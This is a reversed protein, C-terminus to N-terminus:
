SSTTLSGATLVVVVMAILCGLVIGPLFLTGLAAGTGYGHASKLARVMMILAMISIPISILGPLTGLIPSIVSLLRLPTFIGSLLSYPGYVLSLLYSQVVFDGRGGFLRAAVSFLGSAIFFNLLGAIAGFVSVGCSCPIVTGLNFTSVDIPLPSTEFQPLQSLMSPISGMFALSVFFNVLVSAVLIGPVTLGWRAYVHEEDLRARSPLALMEAWTDIMEMFSKHRVERPAHEVAEAGSVSGAPVASSAPMVQDLATYCRLCRQTGPPNAAGCAPCIVGEAPKERAIKERLLRLETEARENAPNIALVNELCVQRDEDSEVAESLYFWAFENREDANIVEMLKRRAEEKNGIRLAAIGGDMLNQIEPDM